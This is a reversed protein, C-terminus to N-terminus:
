RTWIVVGEEKARRIVEWCAESFERESVVLVTVPVGTDAYIDAAVESAEARARPLHDDEVVLMLDLDSEPGADGRAASGFLVLRLAGPVKSLRESTEKLALGGKLLFM